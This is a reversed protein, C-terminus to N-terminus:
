KEEKFSFGVAISKAKNYFLLKNHNYCDYCSQSYYYNDKDKDINQINYKVGKGCIVCLFNNNIM